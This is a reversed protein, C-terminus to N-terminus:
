WSGVSNWWYCEVLVIGGVSGGVCNWWCKWWCLEVMVVCWELLLIGGVTDWWYNGVLLMEDAANWLCWKVLLNGGAVNM